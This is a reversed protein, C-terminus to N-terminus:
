RYAHVPFSITPHYKKIEEMLGPLNGEVYKTRGNITVPYFHTVAFGPKNLQGYVSDDFLRVQGNQMVLLIDEPNIAFFADLDDIGTKQKAVVIDAAMNDAIAGHKPLGWVAAPKKTLMDVLEDGTVM